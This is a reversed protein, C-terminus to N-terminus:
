MGMYFSYLVKPRASANFKLFDLNTARATLKVTQAIFYM